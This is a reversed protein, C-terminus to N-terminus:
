GEVVAHNVPCHGVEEHALDFFHQLAEGFVRSPWLAEHRGSLGSKDHLLEPGPSGAAAGGIGGARASSGTTGRM